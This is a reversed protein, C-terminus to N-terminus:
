QRAARCTLCASSDGVQRTVRLSQNDGTGNPIRSIKWSMWAQVGAPSKDPLRACWDSHPSSRERLQCVIDTIDQRCFSDRVPPRIVAVLVSLVAYLSLQRFDKRYGAPDSVLPRPPAGLHKRM